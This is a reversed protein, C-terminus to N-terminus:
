YENFWGLQFSHHKRLLYYFTRLNVLFNFEMLVSVSSWRVWCQDHMENGGVRESCKSKKKTKSKKMMLFKCLIFMERTKGHTFLTADLQSHIQWTIYVCWLFLTSNESATHLNNIRVVVVVVFFFCERSKSFAFGFHYIVSMFWFITKNSCHHFCLLM